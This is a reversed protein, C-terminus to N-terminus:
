KSRLPLSKVPSIGALSPWSPKSPIRTRRSLPLRNVPQMGSAKRDTGSLSRAFRPRGNQPVYDPVVVTSTPIIIQTLSIHPASFSGFFHLCGSPSGWSYRQSNSPTPLLHPRPRERPAPSDRFEASVYLIDYRPLVQGIQLNPQM